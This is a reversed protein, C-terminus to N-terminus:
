GDCVEAGDPSNTALRMLEARVRASDYVAAWRGPSCTLWEATQMTSRHGVRGAGIDIHRWGPLPLPEAESVVVPSGAAHWRQALELVKERPLDDHYGTTGKYPPDLYVFAGPYCSPEVSEARGHVVEIMGRLDPLRELRRVVVGLQPLVEGFTDGGPRGYADTRSFGSDRWREGGWVPKGRFSWRQMALFSAVEVPTWAGSPPTSRMREWEQRPDLELLRRLEALVEARQTPDAAATWTPAWPGPEVLVIRSPRRLGTAEIIADSYRGKAGMYPALGGRVGLLRMSLAASGACLEIITSM